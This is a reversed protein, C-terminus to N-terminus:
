MDVSVVHVAQARHCDACQSCMISLSRKRTQGSPSRRNYTRLVSALPPVMMRESRPAIETPTLKGTAAATLMHM